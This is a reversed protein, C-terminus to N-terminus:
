AHFYFDEFLGIHDLMTTLIYDHKLCKLIKVILEFIAIPFNRAINHLAKSDSIQNAALTLWKITQHEIDSAVFIPHDAPVFEPGIIYHKIYSKDSGM